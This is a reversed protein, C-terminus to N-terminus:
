QPHDVAATMWHPRQSSNNKRDQWARMDQRLVTWPKVGHSDYGNGLM